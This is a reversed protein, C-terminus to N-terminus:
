VKLLNITLSVLARSFMDSPPALHMYLSYFKFTKEANSAKAGAMKNEVEHEILVFNNSYKLLQTESTTTEYKSEQYDANIRYAVIKGDIMAQVPHLNHCWPAQKSTLHVGGHWGHGQSLIFRGSRINNFLLKFDGLTQYSSGDLKSIPFVAGM